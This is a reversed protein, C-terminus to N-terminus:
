GGNSLSKYLRMLNAQHLDVVLGNLPVRSKGCSEITISQLSDAPQGKDCLQCVRQRIARLYNLHSRLVDDVEGRLVVEGHGQVICDLELEKIQELSAVLDDYDGDFLTPVPMMNDSAFLIHEKVLLVGIMDPSHGPMHMLRLTKDGVHLDLYGEEFTLDPLVIEVDEFGPLQAKTQSLGDRGASDLLEKCRSHSVVQADPFLHTGQTHDAHYHTNIVFLVRQGLRQELFHKIALTEEPYFLTDILVAGAKTLIAGATEQAYLRSSFIYIDDAIRERIM